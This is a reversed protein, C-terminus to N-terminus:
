NQRSKRYAAPTTDFQRRFLRTLHEQHSFGCEFAIEAISLRTGELLERAKELRLNLLYQYPPMGVNNRFQRAFHSPSRNVVASIDELTLSQDLRDRMYAIAQQVVPSLSSGDPAPPATRLRANSYSRVLQTAVARSLCDVYLSTAYDGDELAFMVAQMLNIMKVDRDIFDPRIDINSPDGEAMEAAVEEIVARRIYCHLTDLEGMLRFGFSTGGPVVHLAGSPVVRRKSKAGNLIDVTVPGSRHLVLLQDDVASFYAEFPYESQSSAYISSWNYDASCTTAKNKKRGLVGHTEEVRFPVHIRM